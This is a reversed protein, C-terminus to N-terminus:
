IPRWPQYLFIQANYINFIHYLNCVKFIYMSQTIVPDEFGMSKFTNQFIDNNDIYLRYPVTM